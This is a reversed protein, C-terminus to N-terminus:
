KVRTRKRVQFCFYGSFFIIGKHLGVNDNSVDNIIKLRDGTWMCVAGFITIKM